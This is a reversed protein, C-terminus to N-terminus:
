LQVTWSKRTYAAIRERFIISYALCLVTASCVCAVFQQTVKGNKLVTWVTWGWRAWSRFVCDSTTWLSWRACHTFWHIGACLQKEFTVRLDRIALPLAGCINACQHQSNTIVAHTIWIVNIIRPALSANAVCLHFPTRFPAGGKRCVTRVCVPVTRRRSAEVPKCVPRRPDVVDPKRTAGKKHRMLVQRANIGIRKAMESRASMNRPVFATYIYCSVSICRHVEIFGRATLAMKTESAALNVNFYIWHFFKTTLVM